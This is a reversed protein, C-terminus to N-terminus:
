SVSQNIKNHLCDCVARAMELEIGCGCLDDIDASLLAEMTDFHEIIQAACWADVAGIGLLTRRLTRQQRLDHLMLQLNEATELNLNTLFQYAHNVQTLMTQSNLGHAESLRSLRGRVHRRAVTGFQWYHALLGFYYYIVEDDPNGLRITGDALAHTVKSDLKDIIMGLHVTNRNLAVKRGLELFAIGYDNPEQDGIEEYLSKLYLDVAVSQLDLSEIMLKQLVNLVQALLIKNADTPRQAHGRAVHHAMRELVRMADIYNQESGDRVAGALVDAVASITEANSMHPVLQGICQLIERKERGPEALQSLAGFDAWIMADARGSLTQLEALGKGMVRKTLIALRLESWAIAFYAAVMINTVMILPVFFNQTEHFFHTIRCGTVACLVAPTPISFGVILVISIVILITIGYPHYFYQDPLTLRKINRPYRKAIDFLQPPVQLLFTPLSVGFVLLGVLAEIFSPLYDTM